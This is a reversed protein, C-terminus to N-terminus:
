QTSFPAAPLGAANLLSVEGWNFWGYRAAVPQPVEPSFVRVIGHPLIEAQAAVFLQDAGCIEFGAGTGDKFQLGQSADFHILMAGDRVMSQPYVPGSSVLTEGYINARALLALREGVPEKDSPHIQDQQGCDITVALEVAPLAQAVQAQAARVSPWDNGAGAGYRPLQVIFFPLNAQEFGARWSNILATLTGAYGAALWRQTNGEGQYWIVGRAAMPQIPAVKGNFLASPRRFNNEGWYGKPDSGGAQVEKAAKDLFPKSSPTNELTGRDIWCEAYTGGMQTNILAIPTGAPLSQQLARAFFFGVGSLQKAQQPDCTVWQGGTVDRAPEDCAGQFPWQKFIKLWPFDAQAAAENGGTCNALPWGMNSQGALIWVEGVRVEALQITSGTRQSRVTLNRPDASVPIADLQVQWHKSADARAHKVQGAFEVSVEEGVEAEGWVMVPKDAQLVMGDAFISPLWVEAQASLSVFLLLILAKMKIQSQDFPPLM